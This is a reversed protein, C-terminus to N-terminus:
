PSSFTLSEIKSLQGLLEPSASTPDVSEVVIKRILDELAKSRAGTVSRVNLKKKEDVYIRVVIRAGSSETTAIHSAEKEWRTMMGEVLTQLERVANEEAARTLPPLLLLFTLFLRIM